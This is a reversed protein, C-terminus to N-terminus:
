LIANKKLINNYINNKINHQIINNQFLIFIYISIEILSKNNNSIFFGWQKGINGM